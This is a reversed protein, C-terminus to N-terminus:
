KIRALKLLESSIDVNLSDIKKLDVEFRLKKNEIYFVISADSFYISSTDAVIVTSSVLSQVDILKLATKKNAYRVYILECKIATNLQLVVVSPKLDGARRSGVLQRFFAL